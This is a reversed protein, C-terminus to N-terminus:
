ISSTIRDCLAEITERKFEPGTSVFCEYLPEILPLIAQVNDYTVQREGICDV